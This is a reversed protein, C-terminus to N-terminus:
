DYAFQRRLTKPDIKTGNQDLFVTSPEYSLEEFTGGTDLWMVNNPSLRAYTRDFREVQQTSDTIEM